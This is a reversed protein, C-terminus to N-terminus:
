SWVGGLSVHAGDGDMGAVGCACGDSFLVLGGSKAVNQFGRSRGAALEHRHVDHVVDPPVLHDQRPQRHRQEDLIAIAFYFHCIGELSVHAAMVMWGDWTACGDLCVALRGTRRGTRSTKCVRRVDLAHAFTLLRSTSSRRAHHVIDTACRRLTTKTRYDADDNTTKRISISEVFRRMRAACRARGSFLKGDDHAFDVVLVPRHVHATGHAPSPQRIHRDSAVLSELGGRRVVLVVRFM